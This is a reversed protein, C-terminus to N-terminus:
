HGTKLWVEIQLGKGISTRIEARGGNAQITSIASAADSFESHADAYLLRDLQNQSMGFGNNHIEVIVFETAPGGDAEIIATRVDIEITTRDRADNLVSRLLSTLPKEFELSPVQVCNEFDANVEFEIKRDAADPALKNVVSQIHDLATSQSDAVVSTTAPSELVAVGSATEQQRGTGGTPTTSNYRSEIAQLEEHLASTRIANPGDQVSPAVFQSRNILEFVVGEVGFVSPAANSSSQTRDGMMPRVTLLWEVNQEAPRVHFQESQGQQTVRRLIERSKQIPLATLLTLLGLSTTEGAVANEKQLLQSMTANVVVLNGFVDYVALASQSGDFLRELRFLHSELTRAGAVLKQYDREEPIFSLINRRDNTLTNNNLGIQELLDVIQGSYELLQSEFHRTRALETKDVALVIFGLTRSSRTLPVLFQVCDTPDAQHEFGSLQMQRQSLNIVSRSERALSFPKRREDFGSLEAEASFGASMAAVSLQQSDDEPALAICWALNLNQELLALVNAWPNTDDTKDTAGRRSMKLTLDMMLQRINVSTFDTKRHYVRLLCVMQVLIMLAAPLWINAQWLILTAAFFEAICLLLTIGVAWRVDFRQAIVVAVFAAAIMLFLELPSILSSIASDTLLTNLAHGHFELSTMKQNSTTTPTPLGPLNSKEREGILAVRGAFIDPLLTGAVVDESGVAPLSGATGRFNVLFDNQITLRTRNQSLSCAVLGEISPVQQTGLFYSLQQTRYTGDASGPLALLGYPLLDLSDSGTSPVIPIRPDHLNYHGRRALFIGDSLRIRRVLESSLSHPDCTLVIAATDMNELETVLADLSDTREAADPNTYILVVDAAPQDLHSKLTVARDFAVNKLAHLGTVQDVFWIVIATTLAILVGSYNWSRALQPKRSFLKM